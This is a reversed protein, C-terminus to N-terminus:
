TQPGFGDQANTVRRVVRTSLVVTVLVLVTGAAWLPYAVTRTDLATGHLPSGHATVARYLWGLLYLSATGLVGLWWRGMAWDAAWETADGAIRRARYLWTSFAGAAVLAGLIWLM